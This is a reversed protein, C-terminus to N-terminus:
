PEASHGRKTRGKGRLQIHIRVMEIKAVLRV